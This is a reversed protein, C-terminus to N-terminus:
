KVSILPQHHIPFNCSNAIFCLENARAHLSKANAVMSQEAVTVNPHLTIETFRGGGNNTEIMTGSAEDLYSTVVIGADSCLHLYWLMHCSSVSAVFLDEPSYKKSDGLFSPDSSGEIPKKDGALITHSRTYSRYGSTGTGTNGTWEVSTKYRHTKEM